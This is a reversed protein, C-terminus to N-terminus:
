APGCWTPFSGHEAALHLVEGPALPLAGQGGRGIAHGLVQPLIERAVEIGGKRVGGVDGGAPVLLFPRTGDPVIVGAADVAHLV